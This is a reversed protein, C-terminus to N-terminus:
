MQGMKVNAREIQDWVVVLEVLHTGMILMKRMIDGGMESLLLKTSDYHDLHTPSSVTAHYEFFRMYDAGVIDSRLANNTNNFLEVFTKMDEQVHARLGRMAKYHKVVIMYLGYVHMAAPTTLKQDNVKQIATASMTLLQDTLENFLLRMKERNRHVVPSNSLNSIILKKLDDVSNVDEEFADVVLAMIQRISMGTHIDARFTVGLASLENVCKSLKTDLIHTPNKQM